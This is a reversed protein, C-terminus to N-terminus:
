PQEASLPYTKQKFSYNIQSNSNIQFTMPDHQEGDTARRERDDRQVIPNSSRSFRARFFRPSPPLSVGTPRPTIVSLVMWLFGEFHPTIFIFFLPDSPAITHITWPFMERRRSREAQHHTNALANKTLNM